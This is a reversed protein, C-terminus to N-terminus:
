GRSVPVVLLTASPTRVGTSFMRSALSAKTVRLVKVFGGQGDYIVEGVNPIQDGFIPITYPISPKGKKM